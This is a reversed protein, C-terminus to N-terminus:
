VAGRTSFVAKVTLLLLWLDRRLSVARVYGLDHAIMFGAHSSNERDYVQWPGTLGPRVLARAAAFNPLRDLMPPFIPRPGVLSMEGKLVNFLQPLEDISYRRLFAGVRTIRPNATKSLYATRSVAAALAAEEAASQIRMSRFKLMHFPAGHLGARAAKYFIPGPSDLLTALAALLLVPSLLVLALVAIVGDVIVKGYGTYFSATARLSALEDGSVDKLDSPPADTTTQVAPESARGPGFRALL